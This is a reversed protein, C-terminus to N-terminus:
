RAVERWSAEVIVVETEWGLKRTMGRKVQAAIGLGQLFKVLSVAAERDCVENPFRECFSTINLAGDYAGSRALKVLEALVPERLSEVVCVEVVHALNHLYSADIRPVPKLVDADIARAEQGKARRPRHDKAKPLSAPESM